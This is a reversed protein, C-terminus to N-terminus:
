NDSVYEQQVKAIARSVKGGEYFHGYVDEKPEYKVFRFKNWESLVHLIANMTSSGSKPMKNHFVFELRRFWSKSIKHTVYTYRTGPSYSAVVQILLNQFMVRMSSRWYNGIQKLFTSKHKATKVLM